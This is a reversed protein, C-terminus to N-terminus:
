AFVPLDCGACIFTGARKEDNLPSSGARETDHDRLVDFQEPTLRTRWEEDSYTIEFSEEDQAHVKQGFWRMAGAGSVAATAAAAIAFTRRSLM